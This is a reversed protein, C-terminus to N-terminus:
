VCRTKLIDKSQFLVLDVTAKGADVLGAALRLSAAPLGDVGVRVVVGPAVLATGILNTAKKRKL